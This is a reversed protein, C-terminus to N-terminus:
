GIQVLARVALGARLAQLATQAAYQKLVDSDKVPIQRETVIRGAQEVAREIDIQRRFLDVCGVEVGSAIGPALMFALRTDKERIGLGGDPRKGTGKYVGAPTGFILRVIF